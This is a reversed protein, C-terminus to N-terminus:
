LKFVGGEGKRDSRYNYFFIHIPIDECRLIVAHKLLGIDIDSIDESQSLRFADNVDRVIHICENENKGEIIITSILVTKKPQQQTVVTIGRFNNRKKAMETREEQVGTMDWDKAGHWTEPQLSKANILIM